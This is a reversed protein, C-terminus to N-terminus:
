CIERSKYIVGIYNSDDNTFQLHSTGEFVKPKFESIDM